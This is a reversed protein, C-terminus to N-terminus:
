AAIVFGTKTATVKKAKGKARLGVIVNSPDLFRLDTDDGDFVDFGKWTKPLAKGKKTNFVVAVNGRAIMATVDGHNVESHSRLLYYNSPLNQRKTIPAKTYDYFVVDSFELFMDPFISEWPLDSTGNLRVVPLLGQKEARAIHKRIEKYLMAKFDARAHVFYLTRQLRATVSANLNMHYSSSVLCLAKCEPTAYQCVNMSESTDSPALYMITTLYGKGSNNSKEIKTSSGLLYGPKQYTGNLDSKGYGIVM